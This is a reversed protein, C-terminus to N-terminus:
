RIIKITVVQSWASGHKKTSPLYAKMRYTEVKPTGFRRSTWTRGNQLKASGNTVRRWSGGRDTYLRVSEGPLTPSVSGSLRYVSGVRLTLSARSTSVKPVVVVKKISTLVHTTSGYTFEFRYERNLSPKLSFSVSRGWDAPTWAVTRATTWSRGPIRQRLRLTGPAGIDVTASVRASEGTVIRTPSAEISAPTRGASLTRVLRGGTSLLYATSQGGPAVARLTGGLGTTGSVWAQSPPEFFGANKGGAIVLARSPLGAWALHPWSQTTLSPLGALSAFSVADDSGLVDSGNTAVFDPQGDGLVPTGGAAVSSVRGAVTGAVAWTDGTGVLIQGAATGAVATGGGAIAVCLINSTVDSGDAATAYVRSWSSGANSSYMIVGNNGVAYAVSGRLAIDRIASGPRQGSAKRWSAKSSERVLLVPGSAALIRGSTNAAVATFVAGGYGSPVKVSWSKGGNTSIGIHGDDGAAALSTKGFAYVDNIDWATGWPARVSLWANTAAHAPTTSMALLAGFVLLVAAAALLRARVPGRANLRSTAPATAPMM